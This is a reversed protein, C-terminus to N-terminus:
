KSLTEEWIGYKFLQFWKEIMSPDYIELKLFIERAFEIPAVGSATIINNDTVALADQYKTKGKYGTSMTQLYEVANSTHKINDLFGIDALFLTAGCVAAVPIGSSRINKIFPIIENLKREEWAKGGPLLLMALNSVDIEHLPMDPIVNLGGMSKVMSGDLSFTKIGYKGSNMIEPAAYSIEWDSFGDFLFIYVSKEKM